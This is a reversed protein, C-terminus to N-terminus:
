EDNSEPDYNELAESIDKTYHGCARLFSLFTEIIDDRSHDDHLIIEIDMIDYQNDIDRKKNFKIM